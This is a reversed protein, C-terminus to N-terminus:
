LHDNDGGAIRPLVGDQRDHRASKFHGQNRVIKRGAVTPVLTEGLKKSEKKLEEIRSDKAALKDGAAALDAKNKTALDDFESRLKGLKETNTRNLSEQRALKDMVPTVVTVSTFLWGGAFGLALGIVLGVVIRGM